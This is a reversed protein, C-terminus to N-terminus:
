GHDSASRGASIREISRAEKELTDLSGRAAKVERWVELVEQVRDYRRPDKRLAFLLDRDRM